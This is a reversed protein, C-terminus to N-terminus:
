ADRGGGTQRRRLEHVLGDLIAQLDARAVEVGRDTRIVADARAQKVALPMQSQVIAEFKDATMGQRALARQRQTDIDVSCLIVFDCLSESGTEFLLPIDLVVLPTDAQRNVMLFSDRSIAVLPHIIAELKKRRDPAGFVEAGLRQRDISGDAALVQDGFCDVVADVAAGGPAMMEHVTADADHVPIALDRFIGAMTSKGSAIGGTLGVIIM